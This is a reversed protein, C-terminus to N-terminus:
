EERKVEERMLGERRWDSVVDGEGWESWRRERLVKGRSRRRELERWRRLRLIKWRSRTKTREVWGRERM